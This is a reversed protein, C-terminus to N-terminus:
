IHFRKFSPLDFPEHVRTLFDKKAVVNANISYPEKEVPRKRKRSSDKLLHLRTAYSKVCGINVGQMTDILDLMEADIEIM